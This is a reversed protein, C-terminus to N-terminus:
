GVRHALLHSGKRVSIATANSTNQSWQFALTGSSTTFITGHGTLGMDGSSAAYGARATTWPDASNGPGAFTSAGSWYWHVYEGTAGSPVAFQFKLDIGTSACVYMASLYVVYVASAALNLTLDPDNSPSTNSSRSTDSAKYSALPVFWNNV